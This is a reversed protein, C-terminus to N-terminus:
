VKYEYPQSSGYIKPNFMVYIVYIVYIVPGYGYILHTCFVVLAACLSKM